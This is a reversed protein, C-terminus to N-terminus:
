LTLSKVYLGSEKADDILWEVQEKSYRKRRELESLGGWVGKCKYILAFELCSSKVPCTRCLARFDGRSGGNSPKEDRFFTSRDVGKCAADRQWALPDEEM